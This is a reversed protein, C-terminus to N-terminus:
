YDPQWVFDNVNKGIVGMGSIKYLNKESVLYIFDLESGGFKLDVLNKDAPIDITSIVSKTEPDLEIVAGDDGNNAVAIWLHNNEDTVLGKFQAKSDLDPADNISFLEQCETADGKEDDYSCNYITKTASDSYFMTNNEMNWAFGSPNTAVPRLKRYSQEAEMTNFYVYFSPHAVLNEFPRIEKSAVVLRGSPDTWAASPIMYNKLPIRGENRMSNWNNFTLNTIPNSLNFQVMHIRENFGILITNNSEEESSQTFNLQDYIPVAFPYSGEVKKHPQILFVVDAPVVLHHLDYPLEPAATTPTQTTAETTVEDAETTTEVQRRFRGTVSETQTAETTIVDPTLTTIEPDKERFRIYKQGWIDAIVLYDKQKSWHLMNCHFCINEVLLEVDGSKPFNAPNETTTALETTTVLTTTEVEVDEITTTQSLVLTLSSCVLIFIMISV